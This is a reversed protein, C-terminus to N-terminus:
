FPMLIIPKLQTGVQEINGNTGIKTIYGKNSDALVSALNQKALIADDVSSLSKMEWRSEEEGWQEEAADEMVLNISGRKNIM